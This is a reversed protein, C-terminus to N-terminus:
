AAEDWEPAWDPDITRGDPRALASIRGMEDPTLAFDYIDNNENVREAKSSRPIAVVGEQQIHWRLVVQASTRGKEEAIERVVEEDLVSGRAIPAYSTLALGHKRCAAHVISQNLYPHYEVQNAVLPEDAHRMAAEILAAPFNSVGIHKTLGQKKAKCLSQIQEDFPISPSPWHILVLDAQDIQLRKLSGEVSKQFDGDRLNEHWVKTTVFIDDRPTVHNALVDGVAEENDYAEATDIHRYGADLAVEVMHRCVDDRLRWTGFGLAPIEAGNATVTLTM